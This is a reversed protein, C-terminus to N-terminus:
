RENKVELPIRTIKKLESPMEVPDYFGLEQAQAALEDLAKKSNEMAAIRKNSAEVSSLMEDISASTREASAKIKKALANSIADQQIRSKKARKM